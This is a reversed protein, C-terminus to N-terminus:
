SQHLGFLYAARVLNVLTKLRLKQSETNKKFQNQFSIFVGEDVPISIMEGNVNIKFDKKKGVVVTTSINIQAVM